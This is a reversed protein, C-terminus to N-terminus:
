VLEDMSSARIEDTGSVEAMAGCSCTIKFKASVGFYTKLGRGKGESRETTEAEAEVEIDHTSDELHEFPVDEGVELNAEKLEQGCESCTRVIRYTGVVTVTDDTESHDISQEEPEDVLDLGVFKNCDPCRM